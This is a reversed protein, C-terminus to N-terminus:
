PIVESSNNKREAAMVCDSPAEPTELRLSLRSQMIFASSSFMSRPNPWRLNIGIRADPFRYQDFRPVPSPCCAAADVSPLSTVSSPVLSRFQLGNLFGYVGTHCSNRETISEQSAYSGSSQSYYDHPIGGGTSCDSEELFFEEKPHLPGPNVNELNVDDLVMSGAAFEENSGSVDSSCEEVPHSSAPNVNESNVDYLVMSGAACEKNSDNGDSFFDENPHSSGPNVNESHVDENHVMLWVTCEKNSDERKSM